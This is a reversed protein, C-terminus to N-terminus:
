SEKDGELKIESLAKSLLDRAEAAYAGADQVAREVGEIQMALKYEILDGLSEIPNKLKEARAILEYGRKTKRWMGHIARNRSEVDQEIREILDLIQFKCEGTLGKRDMPNNKLSNLLGSLPKTRMKGFKLQATEDGIEHETTAVELGWLYAELHGCNAVFRGLQLLFAEDLQQDAITARGTPM